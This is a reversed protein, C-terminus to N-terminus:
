GLANQPIQCLKFSQFYQALCLNIHIDQFFLGISPSNQFISGLPINKSLRQQIYRVLLQWYDGFDDACYFDLGTSKGVQLKVYRVMAIKVIM